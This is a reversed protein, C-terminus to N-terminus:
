RKLGERQELEGWQVVFFWDGSGNRELRVRVWEPDVSEIRGLVALERLISVVEAKVKAEDQESARMGSNRTPQVKMGYFRQWLLQVVYDRADAYTLPPGTPLSERTITTVITM